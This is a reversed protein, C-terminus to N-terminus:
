RRCIVRAATGSRIDTNHNRYDRARQIAEFVVSKRMYKDGKDGGSRIGAHHASKGCQACLLTAEFKMSPATDATEVDNLLYVSSVNEGLTGECYACRLSNSQALVAVRRADDRVDGRLCVDRMHQESVVARVAAIARGRAPTVMTVAAAAVADDHRDHFGCTFGLPGYKSSDWQTICACVECMAWLMGRLRQCRGIMNVPIAVLADCRPTSLFNRVRRAETLREPELEVDLLKDYMGDDVDTLIKKPIHQKGCRLGTHDPAFLAEDQGIAHVKESMRVRRLARRRNLDSRATGATLSPDPIPALLSEDSEIVPALWEECGPCYYMTDADRPMEESPALVLKNRLALAQRAATHYPLDFAARSRHREIALFYVHALFFDLPANTYLARVRREISNDAIDRTEYEFCLARLDRLGAETMGLGRLWRLEVPEEGRFRSVRARVIARVIRLIRSGRAVGVIRVIERASSQPRVLLVKLINRSFFRTLEVALMASATKCRLKTILPLMHRDHADRLDANVAQLTATYHAAAAASRVSASTGAVDRDADASLCLPLSCRVMDMADSINWSVERWNTTDRLMMDLALNHMVLARYFEKMACFMIQENEYIWLLLQSDTLVHLRMSHLVHMRMAFRPRAGCFPYNGLLSVLLVVRLLPMLASYSCAYQYLIRVYNRGQCKHSLTKSAFLHVIAEWVNNVRPRLDVHFWINGHDLCAGIDPLAGYHEVRMDHPMHTELVSRAIEEDNTYIGTVDSDSYAGRRHMATALDLHTDIFLQLWYRQAPKTVERQDIRMQAACIRVLLALLVSHCSKGALANEVTVARFSMVDEGFVVLPALLADAIGREGRLDTTLGARTEDFPVFVLRAIADFESDYFRGLVHRPTMAPITGRATAKTVPRMPMLPPCGTLRVGGITTSPSLRFDVGDEVAGKLNWVRGTRGNVRTVTQYTFCMPLWKVYPAVVGTWMNVGPTMNLSVHPGYEGPEGITNRHSQLVLRPEQGRSQYLYYFTLRVM